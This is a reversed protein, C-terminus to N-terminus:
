GKISGIMVGKVFHKQVFPYAILMPASAIFITAYKMAEAMYAQRVAWELMGEEDVEISQLMTKSLILIDRLVLQLPYLDRNRIYLLATYYSNWHGVAHFLAMVALIPKALPLAIRFFSQFESAGDIHAAEYLSDSITTNFFQRVVIMNYCSVGGIIMIWRSDILGLSKMLLYTPIMGGGFYMTIFFFGALVKRGPLYNKSMVYAAPILTLLNYLTGAATYIVTNFYGTWIEENKFVNEYAEMTLGKPWLMVSGTAVEYPESVSAIVVFYLPYLMVIIVVTMLFINVCDFIRDSRSKRM